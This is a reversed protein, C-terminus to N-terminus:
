PQDEGTTELMAAERAEMRDVLTTLRTLGADFADLLQRLEDTM